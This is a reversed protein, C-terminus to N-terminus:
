LNWNQHNSRDDELPKKKNWLREWGLKFVLNSDKVFNAHWDVKIKRIKQSVPSNFLSLFWDYSVDKPNEDGKYEKDVKPPCKITDELIHLLKVM